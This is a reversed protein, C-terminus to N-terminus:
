TSIYYVHTGEYGCAIGTGISNKLPSQKSIGVGSGPLPPLACNPPPAPPPGEVLLPMSRRIALPKSSSQAKLHQVSTSILKSALPTRFPKTSLPSHPAPSPSTPKSAHMLSLDRNLPLSTKITYPLPAHPKSDTLLQMSTLRRPKPTARPPSLPISPPSSSDAHAPRPTHYPSPSLPVERPSIPRVSTKRAPFSQGDFDMNTLAQMSSHRRPFQYEYPVIHPSQPPVASARRNLHSPSAPLPSSPQSRAPIDILSPKRQPIIKFSSGSPTYVLPQRIPSPQDEVPSLPRAKLPAPPSKRNGKMTTDQRGPLKTQISPPVSGSPTKALSYRVTM